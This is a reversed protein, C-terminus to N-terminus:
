VRVAYLLSRTSNRKSFLECSTRSRFSVAATTRPKGRNWGCVGVRLISARCTSRYYRQGSAGGPSTPLGSRPDCTTPSTGSSPPSTMTGFSDRVSTTRSSRRSPPPSEGASATHRQNCRSPVGCVRSNETSSPGRPRRTSVTHWTPTSTTPASQRWAGGQGFYPLVHLTIRRQTDAISRRGEARQDDIIAQLGEGITIRNVRPNVDHGDAVKGARSQLLRQADTKRTSRSSETRRKGRVTYSIQWYQSGAVRYVSGSGKPQRRKSPM